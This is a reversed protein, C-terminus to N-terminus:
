ADNAVAKLSVAAAPPAPQQRVLLEAYSPVVVGRAARRGIIQWPRGSATLTRLFYGLEARALPAGLCIHRGAGFWLQYVDPDFPRRLDFRGLANNAVYVLMLVRDGQRLTRGDVAMDATIHRGIVPAPTTVRLIERVTSHVLGPDALLQHQQGTDHLLAVGRTMASAATETGAVLLISALGRAQQASIGAERCRGLLTHPGASEYARPVGNTLGDVISRGETIVEPRVVTSGMTGRALAALREGQAFIHRFASDDADGSEPLGLLDAVMRGVWVRTVEAIDVTGGAALREALAAAPGGFVREV